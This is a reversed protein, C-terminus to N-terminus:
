QWYFHMTYGFTVATAAIIGMVHLVVRTRARTIVQMIHFYSDGPDFDPMYYDEVKGFKMVRCMAWVMIHAIITYSAQIVIWLLLIEIGSIVISSM